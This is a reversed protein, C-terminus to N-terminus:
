NLYAFDIIESKTNFIVFGVEAPSRFDYRITEATEIEAYKSLLYDNIEIAKHKLEKEDFEHFNLDLLKFTLNKGDLDSILEVKQIAYTTRVDQMIAFTQVMGNQCSFFLFIIFYTLTKSQMKM